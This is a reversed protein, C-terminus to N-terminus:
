SDRMIILPDVMLARRSPLVSAIAVGAMLVLPAALWPWVSLSDASPAIRALWRAALISAIMGAVTGASALRVGEGLVLRIVRWASAGLAIRLAIDRRRQRAFEAMAAYLGLAGLTIAIAAFAGVLQTAIREPAFAVRGLHADLTTVDAPGAGGPVADLRRGVATLLGTSADAADLVLTMRPLFDQTMPLYLGPEARRQAARLPASPVVGIIETRRGDGDIVAGGVAAGGFYLEAAERNIVGVRCGRSGADERFVNGDIPSLGMVDFYSSSVVNVELVGSAPSPLVAVRFRSPGEVGSLALGARNLLPDNHEAYFFITPRHPRTSGGAKRMAVAGIIEIRQGAQDEISRGVADGDFLEAAAEENVIAVRCAPSDGGGFMRGAIPPLTVLDLSESTWAAVEMVVERGPSQAREIRMPHWAARTGPLTGVWATASIDPMSRAAREASRFYELGLDPRDFRRSAQLTALIPEGLRSGASTRLASRFGDLLLGTSTVLLCCCTLQAVVLGGRLRRMAASPGANERQLVVAPAAHRTAALPMLGCAAMIAVCVVSASVIGRLDPSFLLHEADQAFFLAPVVDVTWMALLGGFAGGIVSVLVSDVLLQRTIQGRRAGLAVRVSTEHSRASARALLFSAVNACAILFVAGTALLLLRSVRSMGAARDPTMGTYPQVAIAEDDGRASDVAAQVQDISVGPRLQGVVWWTRSARDLEQQSAEPLRMWIDVDRGLYLGELPEPAVDETWTDIGDVRIPKRRVDPDAALERQWAGHGIVVGEGSPIHLIDALEPTVTMVSLAASRGDLVVSGQSERGAGLVALPELQDQLSLYREYSIPRFTDHADRAFLSVAADINSHRADRVILGRAFGLVSANSGIGLAITLVLALALGPTRTLSRASYWLEAVVSM